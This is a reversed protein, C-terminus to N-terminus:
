ESMEAQFKQQLRRHCQSRHPHDDQNKLGLGPPVRGVRESISSWLRRAVAQFNKAAIGLFDLLGLEQCDPPVEPHINPDRIVEVNVGGLVALTNLGEELICWKYSFGFRNKYKNFTMYKCYIEPLCPTSGTKGLGPLPLTGAPRSEPPADCPLNVNQFVM